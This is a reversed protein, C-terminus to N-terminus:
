DFLDLHFQLHYKEGRPIKLEKETRIGRISTLLHTGVTNYWATFISDIPVWSNEERSPEWARHICNTYRNHFQGLQDQLGVPMKPQYWLVQATGDECAQQNLSIVKAVFFLIGKEQDVDETEMAVFMGMKVDQHPDFSPFQEGIIANPINTSNTSSEQGQGRGRATGGRGQGRRGQRGNEQDGGVEGNTIQAGRGRGRANTRNGRIRHGRPMESRPGFFSTVMVPPLSQLVNTIRTDPLHARGLLPCPVAM